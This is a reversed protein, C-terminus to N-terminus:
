SDHSWRRRANVAEKVIFAEELEINLKNSIDLILFLMDAFEEWLNRQESQEHTKIGSIKHVAKAAEGLEEQLLMFKQPITEEDFGRAATARRVYGQLDPLTRGKTLDNM